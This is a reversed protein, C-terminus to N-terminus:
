ASHLSADATLSNMDYLLDKVANLIVFHLLTDNAGKRKGLGREPSASSLAPLRLTAPTLRNILDIM